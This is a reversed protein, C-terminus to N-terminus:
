RWNYSNLRIERIAKRIYKIIYILLLVFSLIFCIIYFIDLGCTMKEVNNFYKLSQNNLIVRRIFYSDLYFLFCTYGFLIISTLLLGNRKELIILTVFLLVALSFSILVIFSNTFVKFFNFVNVIESSDTVLEKSLFTIDEESFVLADEHTRNEYEYISNKILYTVDEELLLENKEELLNTVFKKKIIKINSEDLYNFIEKPYKYNNISEKIRENEVIYKQIDFKDVLSEIQEKKEINKCIQTFSFFILDLVLVIVILISIIPKDLKM